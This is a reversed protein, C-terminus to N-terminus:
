DFPGAARLSWGPSTYGLLTSQVFGGSNNLVWGEVRLDSARLLVFDSIGDGTIDSVTKLDWETGTWGTTVQSINVVSGSISTSRWTLFTGDSNRWFIDDKYKDNLSGIGKFSYTYPITPTSLNMYGTVTTGNLLWIKTQTAAPPSRLTWFLDSKGDHNFDGMGSLVWGAAAFGMSGTGIVSANHGILWTMVENSSSHTFVIDAIGDGNVDGTGKIVWTSPLWGLSVTSLYQAEHMLYIQLRGDYNRWLIDSSGDGNFDGAGAISWDSSVTDSTGALYGGNVTTWIAWGPGGWVLDDTPDISTFARYRLLAAHNQVSLVSWPDLTDPIGDQDDDPDSTDPTGDGDDDTDLTNPITDGDIDPDLFPNYTADRCRVWVLPDFQALGAFGGCFGNGNGRIWGSGHPNPQPGVTPMPQNWTPPNYVGSNPGDIRDTLLNGSQWIRRNFTNAIKGFRTSNLTTPGAVRESYGSRALLADLVGRNEWVTMLSAFTWSGHSLNEPFEGDGALSYRWWSWSTGDGFSVDNVHDLFFKVNKAIFWPAEDTAYYIGLGNWQGEPSTRYLESDAASAIEVMPRLSSLTVNFPDPASLWSHRFYGWSTNNPDTFLMDQRFAQDTELVATTFRVADERYDLCFWDPHEAVRRAFAAMGYSLLGSMMPQALWTGNWPGEGAGAVSGWAPMVRQHYPDYPPQPYPYLQGLHPFGTRKDDRNKLFVNSLQRLRELYVLARQFDIPALLDYMQALAVAKDGYGWWVGIGGGPYPGGEADFGAFNSNTKLWCDIDDLDDSLGNPGADCGTRTDGYRGFYQWWFRDSEAIISATSNDDTVYPLVNDSPPMTGASCAPPAQREWAELEVAYARTSQACDFSARVATARVPAFSISNWAKNNATIYGGPPDVWGGGLSSTCTTGEPCYSLHFDVNGYSTTTTFNTPESGSTYDNQLSFLDIESITRPGNFDVRVWWNGYNCNYVTATSSSAWYAYQSITSDYPSGRRGDNITWVPQTSYAGSSTAVGTRAVNTEVYGDKIRTTLSSATESEAADDDACGATALLTFGLAAAM